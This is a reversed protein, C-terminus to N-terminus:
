QARPKPPPPAGRLFDDGREARQRPTEARLPDIVAVGDEVGLLRGVLIGGDGKMPVLDCGSAHTPRIVIRSGRYSGRLLQEVSAHIALGLRAEDGDSTVIRAAFDGDGTDHDQFYGVLDIAECAGDAASAPTTSICFLTLSLAALAVANSGISKMASGKGKVTQGTAERAEGCWYHM